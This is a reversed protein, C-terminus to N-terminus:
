KKVRRVRVRRVIPGVRPSYASLAYNLKELDYALDARSVGWRDGFSNSIELDLTVRVKM